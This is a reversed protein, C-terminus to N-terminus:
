QDSMIPLIDKGWQFLWNDGCQQHWPGNQASMRSRRGAADACDTTEEEFHKEAPMQAGDRGARGM